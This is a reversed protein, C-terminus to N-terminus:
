GSTRLFQQWSYILQQIYISSKKNKIEKERKLAETRSLYKEFYVLKWPRKSATYKSWGDAHKSMRCDLDNCQGTYFSFDKMSQLVYVYFSETQKMPLLKFASLAPNSGAISNGRYVSELRAGEVVRVGRRLLLDYEVLRVGRDLIFSRILVSEGATLPVGEVVRVGRRLLLDYEVVRCRETYTNERLEKFYKDLPYPFILPCCFYM